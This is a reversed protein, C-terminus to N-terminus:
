EVRGGFERECADAFACYKRSCRTSQRNPFYLGERIGERVHPYLHQTMLQDAVSVRYSQTVIKPTKTAVCTDLRAEGNVAPALQRYTAIQFAYDPDVKSPSAAKTKLDIIRGQTDILDVLGRVPVGAIAGEVPLEVAAPDIECAVEDIYKRALTGAQRKIEAPDEDERFAVEVTEQAWSEEFPRELDGSELVEGALKARYYTESVQHVVRGRVQSGTSPSPLGLGYKFWWSASCNLYRNVQSPSLMSGLANSQANDAEVATAKFLEHQQEIDTLVTNLRERMKRLEDRSYNEWFRYSTPKPMPAAPRIQALNLGM